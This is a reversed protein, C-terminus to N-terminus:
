LLRVADRYCNQLVRPCTVSLKSGGSEGGESESGGSEGGSVIVVRM